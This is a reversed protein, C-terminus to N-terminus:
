PIGIIPGVIASGALVFFILWIVALIVPGYVLARRVGEPLDDRRVAVLLGLFILLFVGLDLLALGAFGMFRLTRQWDLLAGPDSPPEVLARAQLIIAGLLLLLAGLAVLLTIM